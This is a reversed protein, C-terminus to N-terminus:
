KGINWPNNVKVLSIVYKTKIATKFMIFARENDAIEEEHIDGEIQWFSGNQTSIYGGTKFPISDYTKIRCRTSDARMNGLVTDYRKDKGSDMAYLFRQGCEEMREAKTHTPDPRYEYYYGTFFMDDHPTLFMGLNFM